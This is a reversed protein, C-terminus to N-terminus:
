VVQQLTKRLFELNRLCKKTFKIGQKSVLIHLKRNVEEDEYGYTTGFISKGVFNDVGLRQINIEDYGFGMFLVNKSGSILQQAIKFDKEREESL